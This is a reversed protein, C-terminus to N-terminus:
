FFFFFLLVLGVLWVFCFFLGVNTCKLKIWHKESTTYSNGMKYQLDCHYIFAIHCSQFSLVFKHEDNLFHQHSTTETALTVLVLPGVNGSLTRKTAPKLESTSRVRGRLFEGNNGKICPIRETWNLLVKNMWCLAIGDTPRISFQKIKSTSLLIDVEAKNQM